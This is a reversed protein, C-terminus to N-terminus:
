RRGPSRSQTESADPEDARFRRVLDLEDTM